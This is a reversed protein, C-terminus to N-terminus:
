KEENNNGRTFESSDETREIISLKEENDRNITDVLTDVAKELKDPEIKGLKKMIREVVAFKGADFENITDIIKDTDLRNLVDLFKEVNKMHREVDKPDLSEVKDLTKGIFQDVKDVSSEFSEANGGSMRDIISGIKKVTTDKLGKIKEIIPKLKDMTAGIDKLFDTINNEVLKVGEAAKEGMILVKVTILWIVVNSSTVLVLLQDNVWGPLRYGFCFYAFMFVAQPVAILATVWFITFVNPKSLVSKFDDINKTERSDGSNMCIGIDKSANRM